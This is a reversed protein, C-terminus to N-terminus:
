DTSEKVFVRWYGLAVIFAGGIINGITSLIINYFFLPLTIQRSIFMAIALFYINAICHEFGCLYYLMNPFFVGLVKENLDDGAYSLWAGLNVLIGCLISRFFISVPSLSVKNVATDIIIDRLEPNNIGTLYVFVSLFIAGFFNAIYALFLYRLLERFSINGNKYGISMLLNGTFLTGGCCTTLIGGIPFVLSAILRNHSYLQAVQAGYCGITSYIGAMIGLIIIISTKTNARKKDTDCFAKTTTVPNKM